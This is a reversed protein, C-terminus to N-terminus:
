VYFEETRWEFEQSPHPSVYRAAQNEIDPQGPFTSKIKLPFQGLVVNGDREDEEGSVAVNGHGHTGHLRSGHLEQGLGEAILIKQIRNL